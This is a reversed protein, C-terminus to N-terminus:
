FLLVLLVRDFQDTSQYYGNSDHTFHTFFFTYFFFNLKSADDETVAREKKVNHWRRRSITHNKIKSKLVADLDESLSDVYEHVFKSDYGIKIMVETLKILHASNNIDPYSSNVVKDWEEIIKEINLKM